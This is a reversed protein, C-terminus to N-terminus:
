WYQKNINDETENTAETTQVYDLEKLITLLEEYYDFIDKDGKQQMLFAQLKSIPMAKAGALGFHTALKVLMDKKYIPVLQNNSYLFAIKWRYGEGLETITDLVEFNGNSANTAIKIIANKVVNFAEQATPKNYRAYWAYKEDSIFKTNHINTKIRYEYIGFKYSSGGWISGLEYTRSELWYCFSDDKNLNTYQELTMGQLSDLPFTHLFDKLLKQRLKKVEKKGIKDSTLKIDNMIKRKKFIIVSMTVSM